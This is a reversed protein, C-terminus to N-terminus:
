PATAPRPQPRPTTEDPTQVPYDAARDQLPALGATSASQAPNVSHGVGVLPAIGMAARIRTWDPLGQATLATLDLPDFVNAFLPDSTGSAPTTEASPTAAPIDSATESSAGAIATEPVLPALVAETATVPDPGSVRTLPAQPGTAGAAAPAAGGAQAAQPEARAPANAAGEQTGDQTGDQAGDEPAAPAATAADAAAEPATEDDPAAEGEGAQEQEGDFTLGSGDVHGMQVLETVLITSMMEAYDRLEDPVDAGQAVPAAQPDQAAEPAGEPTNAAADAASPGDAPLVPGVLEPAPLDSTVGSVMAPAASPSDQVPEEALLKFEIRRNAERGEETENDAIPLSEGYGRATMLSTDIGGDTMAALIAQARKRSLDANFGDSGQSDTHGGIEIRFEQCDTMAAKIQELTPTPDGAIVSKNPEFGILSERMVVNLREICEAGSPLGLLPDLRRNYRIALEYNAGAGLREALATAASDSATQSGSVGTIRILEPSVHVTGNELGAMAELAAIVRVTWGAPVEPDLRLASDIQGFRSRAFSEVADRMRQDTIRGRLVVSGSDAAVASFEAPGQEAGGTAISATPSYLPPLAAQLRAVIEDLKAQTTGAPAQLALDTGSLTVQGGGLGEVADIAAVAARGWDRSPAGLGLQCAADGKQGARTAAALITDRAEETDAACADFRVGEDDKVFRLTFPSIVPRPATVDTSLAVNAPKARKLAAELATKEERSDTIATVTVRAPAISIKARPALEAAKLGFGFAADWGEPVPYDATELLDTVKAAGTAKKLDSTLDAREVGAPVLGIISIGEDNRLLEVEFDPAKAVTSQAVEFQDIVRGADVAGEAVLMARFRQVENPATGQLRVQLGQVEVSAWDYGAESLAARAENGLREELLDAAATAAFVSLGGAAALALVTAAGRALRSRQPKKPSKPQLPQTM